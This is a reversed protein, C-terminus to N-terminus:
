AGAYPCHRCGTDCCHGRAALYAATFVWYGTRPDRYRDAGAAVAARHAALIEARQPHSPALRSADPEDLWGPRLPPAMRVGLTPPWM